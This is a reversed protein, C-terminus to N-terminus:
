LLRQMKHDVCQKLDERVFIADTDEFQMLEHERFRHANIQQVSKWDFRVMSYNMQKMFGFIEQKHKVFEIRVFCPAIDLDKWFRNAGGEIVMTETGETDVKMWLTNSLRELVSVEDLQVTEIEIREDNVEDHESWSVNSDFHSHGKNQADVVFGATGGVGGKNTLGYPYLWVNQLGNRRVSSMLLVYNRWLPEFALVELWQYRREFYAGFGISFSGINAGVDLIVLKRLKPM